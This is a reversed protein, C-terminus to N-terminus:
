QRGCRPSNNLGERIQRAARRLRDRVFNQDGANNIFEQIDAASMTDDSLSLKFYTDFHKSLCVRREADWAEHFGSYTMSEMAPFLRQLIIKVAPQRADPIGALFPLFRDDDRSKQSASAGTLVDRHHKIANFLSSEYLRLTELALYDALSVNNAVPPWTVTMANILRTVHRPTVLYPAVADYFVNMFRVVHEESPEGCIQEVASLLASNLDSRAPPPLEFSAQIIKELFHPGESPYRDQVAADALVRDFVLLYMVNPLRGVSKVLRFIALAEDPSLRDIDDIIILFRCSQNALAESLAAFTKELPPKDPFFRKTFAASGAVLAGIGGTTALAVASGIVPGAQLIHRGLEPVMGKIRDGLSNKLAGNLEQLFALAIAEEGRYWWCRFDVVKLKEDKRADLENRILNVASSKGSGWPGNIAITTGVPNALNLLSTAVARAFASIGYQDDDPREIPSDNFYKSM